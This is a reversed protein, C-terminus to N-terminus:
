ERFDRIGKYTYIWTGNGDASEVWEDKDDDTTASYGLMVLMQHAGHMWGEIAEIDETYGMEYAKKLRQEARNLESLINQERTM